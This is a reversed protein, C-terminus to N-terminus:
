RDLVQNLKTLAAALQNQQREDKVRDKAILRFSPKGYRDPQGAKPYYHGDFQATEDPMPLDLPAPRVCWFEGRCSQDARDKDSYIGQLEYWNFRVTEGTIEVEDMAPIGVRKFSFRVFPLYLGRFFWRQWWPSSDDIGYKRQTVHYVKKIETNAPSPHASM